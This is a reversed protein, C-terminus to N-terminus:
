SVCRCQKSSSSNNFTAKQSVVELWHRVIAQGIQVAHLSKLVSIPSYSLFLFSFHRKKEHKSVKFINVSALVRLKSVVIGRHMCTM